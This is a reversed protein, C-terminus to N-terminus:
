SVLPGGATTESIFAKEALIFGLRASKKRWSGLWTKLEKRREPAGDASM